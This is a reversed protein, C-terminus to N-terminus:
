LFGPLGTQGELQARTAQEQEQEPSLQPADAGEGGAAGVIGNPEGEPPAGETEQDPAGPAETQVFEDQNLLFKEPTRISFGEQLIHKVLEYPDVISGLFPSMTNMLAIANQRRFSENNPQTSGAEVAFDFEGQISENDYPLWHQQGDPGFIRAVQEGTLFQQMVQLVKRAVNSALDEIISLKEGSRANLADQILSAETATRKAASLSGRAYESVGTVEQIDSQIQGSWNFLAPDLANIPVPQVVDHLPIEDNEVVIAEGDVRSTLKEVDGRKLAAARVLYKRAYAARYNLMESRTKDLEQQLTWIQELDGIPYFMDPVDYNRVMEFPHGFKYPMKGPKVLYEGSDSELSFICMVNDVLDYFEWIEVMNGDADELGEARPDTSDHTMHTGTLKKRVSQTYARDAKAEDLPRLVRQAVWRADDLHTAEPNVFMDRISIQEVFPRDEVVHYTSTSLNAAIDEDSPLEPALEPQVQAAENVQDRMQIFEAARDQDSMPVQEETYLWGVKLWGHGYMLFDKATKRFAPHFNHHEWAYKLVEEVLVAARDDEPDNARVEVSPIGASVSPYMVNITSFAMNIAVVDEGDNVDQPHIKGRYLDSLKSWLEDYGQNKRWNRARQVEERYDKSRDKQSRRGFKM